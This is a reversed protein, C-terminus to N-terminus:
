ILSSFFSFFVDTFKGKKKNRYILLIQSPGIVFLCKNHKRQPLILFVQKTSYCPVGL